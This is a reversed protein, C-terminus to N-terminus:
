SCAGALTPPPAVGQPPFLPNTALIVRKAKQRALRVAQKALPTPRTFAIAKRFETGYFGDFVPMHDYVQPGQLQSFVDWFADFNTRSGDNKVMAGVGKWMASILASEEYGYPAATQALLHFYGRTFTDNDMPLLTGDLDFLIADFKM